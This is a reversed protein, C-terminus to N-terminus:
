DLSDAWDECCYRRLVANLFVSGSVISNLLNLNKLIPLSRDLRVPGPLLASQRM